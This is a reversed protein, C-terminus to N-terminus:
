SAIVKGKDTIVIDHQESVKVEIEIPEMKKCNCKEVVCGYQGACHFRIRHKCNDCVIEILTEEDVM